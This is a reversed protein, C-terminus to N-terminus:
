KKAAFAAAMANLASGAKFWSIQNENFTQNVKFEYTSGDKRKGQLIFCCCLLTHTLFLVLIIFLRV